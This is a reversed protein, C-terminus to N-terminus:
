SHAGDRSGAMDTDIQFVHVCVDLGILDRLAENCWALSRQKSLQRRVLLLICEKGKPGALFGVELGPAFTQRDVQQAEIHRERRALGRREQADRTVRTVSLSPREGIQGSGGSVGRSESDFSNDASNLM